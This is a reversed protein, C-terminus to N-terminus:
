SQQAPESTEEVPESTEEVPESTEEVPESTEEVPESTEEVPESTEEVPESTEEVTELKEEEALRTSANKIIDGMAELPNGGSKIVETMQGFVEGFEKSAKDDGTVKGMMQGLQGMDINGLINQLMNMPGRQAASPKDFVELSESLVDINKKIMEASGMDGEEKAYVFFVSFLGLLINVNYPFNENKHKVSYAVSKTYVESVPLFLKDISFFLGVPKSRLKFVKDEEFVTKLFDDQVVDNDNIISNILDNHYEGFVPSLIKSKFNSVADENDRIRDFFSSFKESQIMWSPKGDLIETRTIHSCANVMSTILFELSRPLSSLLDNSFQM